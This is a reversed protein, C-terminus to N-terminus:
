RRLLRAADRLPKTLRWSASQYIHRLQEESQTTEQRAKEAAEEAARRVQGRLHELERYTYMNQQRFAQMSRAAGEDKERLIRRYYKAVESAAETRELQCTSRLEDVAERTQELLRRGYRGDPEIYTGECWENWSHVFVIREETEYRWRTDVMAESLWLKYADNDTNIHVLARLGYRPTNDWSAMVTRFRKYPPFPRSMHFNAFKRYDVIRGEFGETVDLEKLDQFLVTEPVTNSPIEYSADFGLDRPHTPNSSWDDAMVLYLGPFGHKVIEDRWLETARRINAFLHTKYVALVPKGCVKVYREDSFIPILERIFALNDEPSHKQSVIVENDGGDWRRSWNENAWLFFFPAKIDSKIYNEIPRYLLKKGQFYYFYFCFGTIGHANALRVQERLVDTSRLDYYGLEGPIRPQYHGKFLPKAKIVNDWETFGPRHGFNNEAIPHFQPLYFAFLRPLEGSIALEEEADREQEKNDALTASIHNVPLPLDNVPPIAPPCTRLGETRGFHLYHELADTVVVLDPRQDVYWKANFRASPCHGAKAGIAIFYDMPELGNQLAEPYHTVYWSRDFLGSDAVMRRYTRDIAVSSSKGGSAAVAAKADPQREGLIRMLYNIAELVDEVPLESVVGNLNRVLRVEPSGSAYFGTFPNYQRFFFHQGLLVVGPTKMANAFHAPGSDIGVFFRARGILEATQLLTTRNRLDIVLSNWAKETSTLNKKQGASEKKTGVEVVPIKLDEVLFRVLTLWKEDTWHKVPTNSERHVVCYQQPLKLADVATRHDENLYIQPQASLSPLGAGLCFAELLPGYDFWEYVNVFPNGHEKVLPVKCCQCVRFNVHLDVVREYKGHKMLKIWDTLCDLVITEDVNPNSDILERFAKQVAWSIHAKPYEARLYRAVPECAVIDGFHEILGVLIKM